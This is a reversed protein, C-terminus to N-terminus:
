GAIVTKARAVWVAEAMALGKAHALPDGSAVAEVYSRCLLPIAGLSVPDNVKRQSQLVPM